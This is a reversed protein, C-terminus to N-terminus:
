DMGTENKYDWECINCIIDFPHRRIAESDPLAYWFMNWFWVIKNPDTLELISEKSFGEDSVCQEFLRVFYDYSYIKDICNKHTVIVNM